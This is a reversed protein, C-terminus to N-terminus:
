SRAPAVRRNGNNASLEGIADRLAERIQNNSPNAVGAAIASVRMCEIQSDNRRSLMWLNGLNEPRRFSLWAAEFAAVQTDLGM